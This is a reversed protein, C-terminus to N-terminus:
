HDIIITRFNFMNHGQFIMSILPPRHYNSPQSKENYSLLMNNYGFMNAMQILNICSPTTFKNSCGFTKMMRWIKCSTTTFTNMHGFTKIMRWIECSTTTFKNTCGFTKIIRWIKCSTTIFNNTRGLTKM